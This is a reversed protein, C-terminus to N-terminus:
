TDDYVDPLLENEAEAVEENSVTHNLEEQFDPRCDFPHESWDRPKGKGGEIIIRAKNNLREQTTKDLEDIRAKNEDNQDELNTVRFVTTRSFVTGNEIFVWYSMLSGIHHSIVM